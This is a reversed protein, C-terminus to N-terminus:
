TQGAANDIAMAAITKVHIRAASPEVRMPDPTSRWCASPATEDRRLGASTAGRTVDGSTDSRNASIATAPRTSKM